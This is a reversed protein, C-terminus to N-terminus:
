LSHRSRRSSFASRIYDPPFPVNRGHKGYRRSAANPERKDIIRPRRREPASGSRPAVTPIISPPVFEDSDIEAPHDYRPTGQATDEMASGSNRSLRKIANSASVWCGSCRLVCPIFKLALLDVVQEIQRVDLEEVFGGQARCAVMARRVIHNNAYRLQPASDARVSARPESCCM